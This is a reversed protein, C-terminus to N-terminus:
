LKRDEEVQAVYFDLLNSSSHGTLQVLRAVTVLSRSRARRTIASRRLNSITAQSPDILARRLYPVVARSVEYSSMPRVADKSSPFLYGDKSLKAESIYKNYLGPFRLRTAVYALEGLSKSIPVRLVEEGNKRLIDGPTTSLLESTRVGEFLAAILCQDRLSGARTVAEWISTFGSEDILPPKVTPTAVRGLRRGEKRPKDIDAEDAGSKAAPQNDTHAIGLGGSSASPSLSGRMSIQFVGFEQLPLLAVLREIEADDIDSVKSSQCFEAVSKSIGERVEAASVKPTDPDIIQVSRELDHLDRYGLGRSLIQQAASLSIPQASPWYKQLRKAVRKFGHGAKLDAACISLRMDFRWYTLNDAASQCNYFHM